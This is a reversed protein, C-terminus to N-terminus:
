SIGTKREEKVGGTNKIINDVIIKYYECGLTGYHAKNCTKYNKCEVCNEPIKSM